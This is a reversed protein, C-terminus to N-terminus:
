DTRLAVCDHGWSRELTATAARGVRRRAHRWPEHGDPTALLAGEVIGRPQVRSSSDDRGSLVPDRVHQQRVVPLDGDLVLRETRRRRHEDVARTLDGARGSRARVRDLREHPLGGGTHIGYEGDMM